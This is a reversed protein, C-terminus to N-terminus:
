ETNRNYQWTGPIFIKSLFVHFRVSFPKYRIVCIAYWIISQMSFCYTSGGHCFKHKRHKVTSDQVTKVM